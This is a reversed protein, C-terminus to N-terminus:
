ATQVRTSAQGLKTSPVYAGGAFKYGCKSCIWIGAAERKVKPSACSPCKHPQKMQLMINTWRKQIAAGGRTRLRLGYTKRKRTM